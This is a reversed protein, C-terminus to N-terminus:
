ELLFHFLCWEQELAHSHIQDTDWQVSVCIKEVSTPCLHTHKLLPSNLPPVYKCLFVKVDLWPVVLALPSLSLIGSRHRYIPEDTNRRHSLLTFHSITPLIIVM